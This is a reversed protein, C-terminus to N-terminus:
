SSTSIDLQSCHVNKSRWNEPLAQLKCVRIKEVLQHYSARGTLM